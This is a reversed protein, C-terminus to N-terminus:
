GYCSYLVAHMIHPLRFLLLLLLLLLLLADFTSGVSEFEASAHISFFSFLERLTQFNTLILKGKNEM